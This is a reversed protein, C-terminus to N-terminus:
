WGEVTSVTLDDGDVPRVVSLDDRRALDIREGGGLPAGDAGYLAAVVPRTHLPGSAAVVRAVRGDSLEVWSGLPFLSVADLLVRALDGDLRRERVMQLLAEMARYPLLAARWPREALLADYVDAIAVIRSIRHIGEAELARPYGSGDVREMCQYSAIAARVPLRDVKRLLSLGLAPARRAETTEQPTLRGAKSRVAEPVKLMGVRALLGAVALEYVEEASAQASVGIAAALIATHLAHSPLYEGRAKMNVLNVVLERDGRLCALIGRAISDIASWPEHPVAALRGYLARVEALLDVYRRLFAARHALPRARLRHETVLGEAMPRSTREPELDVLKQLRSETLERRNRVRASGLPRLSVEEVVPAVATHGLARFLELEDLGLEAPNRKVYFGQIGEHELRARLAADLVANPRVLLKGKAGRVEARIATGDPLDVLAVKRGLLELRLREPDDAEDLAIVEAMGAREMRERLDPTLRAGERVLVAGSKHYLPGAAPAESPIEALPITRL